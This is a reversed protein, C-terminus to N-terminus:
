VVEIHAQLADIDAVAWAENDDPNLEMIHEAVAYTTGLVNDTTGTTAGSNAGLRLSRASGDDKRAVAKIGVGHITPPTVGLDGLNYQDIHGVTSSEVYSTDGDVASENVEVYNETPSRADISSFDRQATDSSPRLAIIRSDGFLGRSPSGADDAIILDDWRFTRITPTLGGLRVRDVNANGANRTDTGTINVYEVGNINVICHGNADDVFLDIDIWHWRNAGLNPVTARLTGGVYIEFQGNSLSNFYLHQGAGGDVVLFKDNDIDM